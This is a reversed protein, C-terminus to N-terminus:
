KAQKVSAVTLAGNQLSGQIAVQQGVFNKLSDQNAVPIVKKETSVFVLKVGKSYCLKNCKADVRAGCQEDSVWGTFSNRAATATAANVTPVAPKASKKDSGKPNDNKALAISFLLSALVLISIQKTM